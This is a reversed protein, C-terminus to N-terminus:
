KLGKSRKPPEAVPIEPGDRLFRDVAKRVLWALSVDERAAIATLSDLQRRPLTVTVRKVDTSPSRPM